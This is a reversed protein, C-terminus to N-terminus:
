AAAPLGLRGFGGLNSDAANVADYLVSGKLEVTGFDASILDLASLPDFVVRYFEARVVSSDGEVTNKGDFVLYREPAPQTFMALNIGAAYSYSWKFPQVFSGISLIKVIGGAASVIEYDTGAVLDLATGTTSDTATLTSINGHDLAILDGVALGTASAEDTVTGADVTAPTGYLGLALNDATGSNLTLTIACDRTKSLRASPLRNGSRSEYRKSVDATFQAQLTSADGVDRLAGPKGNAQRDGLYAIGQLSFDDM